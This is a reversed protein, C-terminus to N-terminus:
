MDAEEKAEKHVRWRKRYFWCGLLVLALSVLQSIRINGLWLSDTRLGEIFFRGVGYGIMYLTVARGPFHHKKRTLWIVLFVALIWLSEYLFTPHVTQGNVLMRWPLNTETGFAEANVFNGWRGICQGILFGYAGIDLYKWVSLQHRRCYLVVVLLVALVGGYIAIGGEWIYFVSMLNDKYEHFSFLVYYLRAGVIGAPLGWLVMNYVHDPKEGLRKTEKIGVYMALLIGTMIILAYWRIGGSGFPLPIAIENINLQIGLGPFGVTNM